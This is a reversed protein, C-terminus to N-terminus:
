RCSHTPHTSCGVGGSHTWRRQAAHAVWAAFAGLAAASGLAVFAAPVPALHSAFYSILGLFYCPINNIGPATRLSLVVMAVAFVVSPLAAAGILPGLVGLALAAGMGVLIGLAVCLANFMGDRASLGRTFFAVWGIFMAWVPLALAASTGAAIAAVTAAMASFGVSKFAPQPRGSMTKQLTTM